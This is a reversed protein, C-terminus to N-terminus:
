GGGWGWVGGEIACAFWDRSVQGVRSATVDTVITSSYVTKPGTHTVRIQFVSTLMVKM